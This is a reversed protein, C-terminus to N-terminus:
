FRSLAALPCMLNETEEERLSEVLSGLSRTLHQKLLRLAVQPKSSLKQALQEAYQEGQMAPIIPCSWGRGGLQQGTWASGAYLLRRAQADGFREAFLAAEEDTPSDIFGFTAEENLVMFDCLAAALFGASKTDQQFIGIMPYAFRVLARYFGQRIAENVDERSRLCHDLGSLLLVKLSSDQEARM